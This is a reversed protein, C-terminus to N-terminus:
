DKSIRIERLYITKGPRALSGWTIAASGKYDQSITFDYVYEQYDPGLRFSKPAVLQTPSTGDFNWVRAEVFCESPDSKASFVLTYTGASPAPITFRVSGRWHEMQGEPFTLKLVEIGDQEDKIIESSVGEISPLKVQLSSLPVSEEGAHAANRGVGLFLAIACLLIRGPSSLFTKAFPRSTPNGTSEIKGNPSHPNPM